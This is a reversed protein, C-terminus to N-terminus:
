SLGPIKHYMSPLLFEYILTMVKDYDYGSIVLTWKKKNRRPWCTLTYRTSLGECLMDVEQKSFSHTNLCFGKREYDKNYCSRGGDDMIWYALARPSLHGFFENKPLAVFYQKIHKRCPIGKSDLVFLRALKTIDSHSLTQFSWMARKTDFYPPSLVWDRFLTHLHFLYERHLKDSQQFKLRYTKGGDQTQLSAHGLLTGISVQFVTDSLSLTNKYERLLKRQTSTPKHM